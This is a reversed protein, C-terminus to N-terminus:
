RSPEKAEGRPGSFGQRAPEVEYDCPSYWIFQGRGGELPWLDGRDAFCFVFETKSRPIRLRKALNSIGPGLTTFYAGIPHDGPPRSARFVWTRQSGIAKFGVEDTYHYILGQPM